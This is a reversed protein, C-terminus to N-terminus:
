PMAHVPNFDGYKLMVCSRKAHMTICTRRIELCKICARAHIRLCCMSKISFVSILLHPRPRGDDGRLDCKGCGNCRSINGKVFYLWFIDKDQMSGSQQMSVIPAYLVNANASPAYSM